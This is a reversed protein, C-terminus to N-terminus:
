REDPRRHLLFPLGGFFAPMLGFTLGLLTGDGFPRLEDTVGRWPWRADTPYRVVLAPLRDVRSPGVAVTLPISDVLGGDSRLLNEGELSTAGPSGARFRKGYWNPMGTLVMTPAGSARLWIPGAFQGEHVGVLLELEPAPAQHFARRLAGLSSTGITSAGQTTV